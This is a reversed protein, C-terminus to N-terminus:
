NLFIILLFIILIFGWKITKWLTLTIFDIYKGGIEEIKDYDEAAQEREDKNPSFISVLNYFFLIILLIIIPWALFNLVGVIIGWIALLTM